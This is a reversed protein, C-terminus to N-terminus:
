NCPEPVKREGTNESRPAFTGVLFKRELSHFNGPVKVGLFSLTLGLHLGLRVKVRFSVRVGVL